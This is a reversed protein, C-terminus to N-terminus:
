HGVKPLARQLYAAVRDKGKQGPKGKPPTAAGYRPEIPLPCTEACFTVRQSSSLDSRGEQDSFGTAAPNRKSSPILGADRVQLTLKTRKWSLEGAAEHRRRQNEFWEARVRALGLGVNRPQRM